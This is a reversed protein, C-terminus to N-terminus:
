ALCPLVGVRFALPLLIKIKFSDVNRFSTASLLCSAVPPVLQRIPRLVGSTSQENRLLLGLGWSIDPCERRPCLANQPFPYSEQGSKLALDLHGTSLRTFLLFCLGQSSM